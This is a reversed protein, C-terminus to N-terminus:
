DEKAVVCNLQDPYNPNFSMTIVDGKKLKNALQYEKWGKVLVSTTRNNHKTRLRIHFLRSNGDIVTIHKPKHPFAVELLQKPVNMAFQELHYDRVPKQVVYVGDIVSVIFKPRPYRKTSFPTNRQNSDGISIETHFDPSTYTSAERNKVNQPTANKLWRPVSAPVTPM